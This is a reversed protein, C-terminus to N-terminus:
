DDSRRLGMRTGILVSGFSLTAMILITQVSVRGGSLLVGSCVSLTALVIGLKYNTSQAVRACTFGGLMSFAVGMTITVIRVPSTPSVLAEGIAEPSGGSSLQILTYIMVIVIEALVSGVIDVALGFLVAKVPSGRQSATHNVEANPPSYPNDEM